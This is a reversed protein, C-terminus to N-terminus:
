YAQLGQLEADTLQVHVIGDLIETVYDIPLVVDEHFVHGRRIVLEEIEDTDEDM